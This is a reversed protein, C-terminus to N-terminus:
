SPADDPELPVASPETEGVDGDRVEDPLDPPCVPYGSGAVAVAARKKRGGRHASGDDPFSGSGPGGM